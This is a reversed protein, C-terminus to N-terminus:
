KINTQTALVTQMQQYCPRDPGLLDRGLARAFLSSPHFHFCHVFKKKQFVYEQLEVRKCPTAAERKIEAKIRSPALWNIQITKM